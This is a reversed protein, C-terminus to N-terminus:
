ILRISAIRKIRDYNDSYYVSIGSLNGNSYSRTILVRSLLIDTINGVTNKDTPRYCKTRQIGM